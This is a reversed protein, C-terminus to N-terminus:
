TADFTAGDALALTVTGMGKGPFPEDWLTSGDRAFAKAAGQGGVFVVGSRVLMTDASPAGGQWLVEGTSLSLCSVTESKLVFVRDGDVAVKASESVVSEEWEWLKRGTVADLAFVYRGFAVILPM